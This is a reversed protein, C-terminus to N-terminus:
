PRYNYKQINSLNDYNLSLSHEHHDEYGDTTIVTKLHVSRIYLCIVDCLGFLSVSLRQHRSVEKRRSCLTDDKKWDFFGLCRKMNTFPCKVIITKGALTRVIKGKRDENSKRNLKGQAESSM